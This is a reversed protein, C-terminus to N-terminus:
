LQTGCHLCFKARPDVENGCEPCFIGKEIKAPAKPTIVDGLNQGCNECFKAEGSVKAGCSPCKSIIEMGCYNCFKSTGELRKGCKPCIKLNQQTFYEISTAVVAISVGFVPFWMWFQWSHFITVTLMIMVITVIILATFSGIVAERLELKSKIKEM